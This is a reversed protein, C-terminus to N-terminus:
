YRSRTEKGERPPYTLEDGAAAEFRAATEHKVIWEAPHRMWEAARASHTPFLDALDCQSKEVRLRLPQLREFRVLM